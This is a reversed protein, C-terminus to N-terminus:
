LQVGTQKAVLNLVGIALIGIGLGNMFGQNPFLYLLIIAIIIEVISSAIAGSLVSVTFYGGLFIGTFTGIVESVTQTYM